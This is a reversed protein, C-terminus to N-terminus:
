TQACVVYAKAGTSATGGVPNHFVVRWADFSQGDNPPDGGTRFPRSVTLNIDEVGTSDLAAGGGIAKTGAPCPVQLGTSNVSDAVTFEDRVVTVAGVVGPAGPAGTAGKAGAPIQGAKFDAALLSGDKVKKASVANKKVESSGVGNTKIQKTGVSNKPITLAYGTGGMAFVLALLSAVNAFSLHRRIASPM